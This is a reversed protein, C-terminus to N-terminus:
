NLSRVFPARRMEQGDEYCHEEDFLTRYGMSNWEEIPCIQDPLWFKGMQDIRTGVQYDGKHAEPKGMDNCNSNWFDWATKPNFLNIVKIRRQLAHVHIKNCNKAHSYNWFPSNSTFIICKPRIVEDHDRKIQVPFSHIDTWQKIHEHMSTLMHTKAEEILVVPEGKYGGWWATQNKLFIKGPYFHRAKWSKGLEPPGQIWYANYDPLSPLEAQIKYKEYIGKLNGYHKVMIEDDIEGFDGVKACKVANAYNEQGMRPQKGTSKPLSPPPKIGWEYFHKTKTCYVYNSEWNGKAGRFWCDEVLATRVQSVRKKKELRVFGQLHPTGTTPANEYGWFMFTAGLAKFNVIIKEELEKTWNNMTFIWSESEYQPRMTSDDPVIKTGLGQSESSIANSGDLLQNPGTHPHAGSLIQINGPIGTSNALHNGGDSISGIEQIIGGNQIGLVGSDTEAIAMSEVPEHEISM